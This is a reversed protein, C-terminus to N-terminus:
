SDHSSPPETPRASSAGNPQGPVWSDVMGIAVGLNIALHVSFRQNPSDFDVGLLKSIREVRQRLTNVHVFLERAAETIRRDKELYVRVTHLLNSDHQRDAELLGGITSNIFSRLTSVSTVQALMRHMGLDTIDVTRGDPSNGNALRRAFLAEKLAASYDGPGACRGGVGATLVMPRLKAMVNDIHEVLSGASAGATPWLVVVDGQYLSLLAAPDIAAVAQAIRDLATRSLPDRGGFAVPTRPTRADIGVLAARYWIRELEGNRPELIQRVIDDTLRLETEFEARERALKLGVIDAFRILIAVSM